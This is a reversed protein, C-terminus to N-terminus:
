LSPQEMKELRDIMESIVDYGGQWFAASAIDIGAEKLIRGPSQSGGYALIKLYKPKFAQGERRFMEYLSLVLLQGFAYAYVYFPTAYFHPISVWEWKFEESVDVAEGFQAKLTELYRAAIEDATRGAAALEHAEKEWLAFYGQRGVTAYADDIAAALLDRRVAPDPEQALLKETLLIEGFVSATEAMPLASHFTLVSHDAALLAHVAHGLEHATTAVDNVRGNYNLHVWPAVGPFASACFAGGRKGPRIEADVHGANFVQRALEGVRPSFTTFTDLVLDVAEGYPYAKEARALPAYLDYRRLKGMGLWRAKLRFYRQFVGANQATINLLTEVVGDPVDNILNRVAIPTKFKRLGLNENRWNRVLGSYIQALVPGQEGYVRYLEQYAAARLAPDAGRAHVMLADRTFTQTEGGVTLTFMFKNTITEYLTQLASAGTVDKLNIIKEEAESLTHPRFHRITELWYRRDGAAKMLRRANANDLAKWWLSFFLLRNQAQATLEEIRNLLALAAQDQTDASFRLAAFVTLRIGERQAAEYDDLLTGFVKASLGAKLKRRWGEAKKVKQGFATIAKEVTANDASPLLAEL